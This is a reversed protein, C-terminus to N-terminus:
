KQESEKLKNTMNEASDKNNNKKVTEDKTITFSSLEFTRQCM